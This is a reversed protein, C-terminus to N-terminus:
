VMSLNIRPCFLRPSMINFLQSDHEAICHCKPFMAMASFVANRIQSAVHHYETSTWYQKNGLLHQVIITWHVNRIQMVWINYLIYHFQATSKEVWDNSTHEIDATLLLIYMQNRKFELWRKTKHPQYDFALLAQYPLRKMWFFFFSSFIIEFLLSGNLLHRLQLRVIKSQQNSCEKSQGDACWVRHNFKNYKQIQQIM